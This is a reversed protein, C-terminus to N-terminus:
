EGMGHDYRDEPQRGPTGLARSLARDKWTVALGAAAALLGPIGFLACGTAQRARRLARVESEDRVDRMPVDAILDWDDTM